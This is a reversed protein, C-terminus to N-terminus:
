HADPGADAPASGDPRSVTGSDPRPSSADGGGACALSDTPKGNADVAGGCYGAREYSAAQNAPFPRCVRGKTKCDDNCDCLAGCIGLDGTDEASSTYAFLCAATPPNPSAPDSGCGLSGLPCFGSCMGPGTGADNANLPLCFGVCPDKTLGADCPSGIPLTGTVDKADMCLGSALDCKRTGCDKDNRCEPSCFGQGSPDNGQFCAVDLRSHCKEDGTQVAGIVCRQLCYAVVAPTDSFGVCTASPDLKGCITPDASCDAVCMGNAPGGGALAKSDSTLCVIGRGGCDTDKLCPKGFPTRSSIVGGGGGDDKLVTAADGADSGIIRGNGAENTGCGQTVGLLLMSGVSGVAVALTLKKM